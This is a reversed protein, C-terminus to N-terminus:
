GPKSGLAIRLRDILHDLRSAIEEVPPTPGDPQEAATATPPAAQGALRAIRELASELRMVADEPDDTQEDMAPDTRLKWAASRKCEFRPAAQVDLM